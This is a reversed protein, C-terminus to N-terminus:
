ANSVSLRWTNRGAAKAAYMAADARKVLDRVEEEQRSHVAIGISVGVQVLTGDALRLPRNLSAIIKGAIVELAQFDSTDDLVIALEDGGLRALCDGSRLLGQLRRAVQILAQDGAQHGHTDNLEKFHDLDLMMLVIHSDTHRRGAEFVTALRRDFALRNGIGTLSDTTAQEEADKHALKHETIDNAIGQVEDETVLNVVVQYWRKGTPLDVELDISQTRGSSAVSDILKRLAGASDRLLSYLSVFPGGTEATADSGLTRSFALNFSKLVGDRDALFIPSGANDFIARFRTEERERQLRLDRETIILNVMNDIIRNVDGVLVGIENNEHSRPIEIHEGSAVDLGHLRRSIARLPRTIQRYLVLLLTCGAVGLFVLFFVIAPRSRIIFQQELQQLDPILEVSGILKSPTSPSPIPLVVPEASGVRGQNRPTSRAVIQGHQDRITVAWVGSNQELGAVVATALQRDQSIIAIEATRGVTSILDHIAGTQRSRENEALLVKAVGVFVLGLGFFAALILSTSRFALRM